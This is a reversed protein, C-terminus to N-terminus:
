NIVATSTGFVPAARAVLRKRLSPARSYRTIEMAMTATATSAPASPATVRARTATPAQESTACRSPASTAVNQIQAGGITRAAQRLVDFVPPLDAGLVDTWTTLAGLRWHDDTETIGRLDDLASIDLVDERPARGVRAPYFDTGGAIVCLAGSKLADLAQTVSDPRLYAPM